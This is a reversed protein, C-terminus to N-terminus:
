RPRTERSARIEQCVVQELGKLGSEAAAQVSREWRQVLMPPLAAKANSESNELVNLTNRLRLLIPAAFQMRESKERTSCLLLLGSSVLGSAKQRLIPIRDSHSAFTFHKWLADFENLREEVREAQKGGRVLRGLTQDARTTTRLENLVGSEFADLAREFQQRNPHTSDPTDALLFQANRIDTLPLHKRPNLAELAFSVGEYFGSPRVCETIEALIQKDIAGSSLRAFQLELAAVSSQISHEFRAEVFLADFLTMVIASISISTIFTRRAATSFESEALSRTPITENGISPSPGSSKQMSDM